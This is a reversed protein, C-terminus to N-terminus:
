WRRVPGTDVHVFDPRAYFGVGGRRLGLALDRLRPSPVGVLRLDLAKGVLHLSRSAVGPGSRRLAENTKLSRFGSVVEITGHPRRAALTLSWALDLLGPDIAHVDGTRFDRLFRELEAVAGPVLAGDEFYTVDVREGTHAGIMRLRRPETAAAVAVAPGLALALLSAAGARLLARRGISPASPPPRLLPV